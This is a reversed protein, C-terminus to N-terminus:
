RSCSPLDAAPRPTEVSMMSALARAMTSARLLSALRLFSDQTKRPLEILLEGSADEPAIIPSTGVVISRKQESGIVTGGASASPLM